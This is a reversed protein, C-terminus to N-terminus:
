QPNYFQAAARQLDENDDYLPLQPKEPHVKQLAAAAGQLSRIFASQPHAIATPIREFPSRQVVPDHPLFGIYEMEIDLNKRTIQRLKGGLSLEDASRGNNLIVRPCFQALQTRIIEGGAADPMQDALSIFSDSSGELRNMMFKQIIEREQSGAPFSRFLLRFISTKIFSYANLIATTEPTCVILGFSGTLFFDVTNYASGAGLDLLVYDAVLNQLDKMMKKKTFFPLNATGPILGDGPLFHLRPIETDCVLNEISTEKKAVIHGIGPGRNRIGLITHLNAAGLDLDVLIVTKGAKALTIGLNATVITKGVGGKGSAIPIVATM